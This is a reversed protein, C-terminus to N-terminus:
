GLAEVSNIERKAFWLGFFWVGIAVIFVIWSMVSKWWYDRATQDSLYLFLFIGPMVASTITITPMIESVAQKIHMQRRRRSEVIGQIIGLQEDLDIGKDVSLVICSMLFKLDPFATKNAFRLLTDRLNGGATLEIELPRLEEYLEDPADKIASMLANQPLANNQVSARMSQLFGPVQGAITRDKRKSLFGFLFSLGIGLLVTIMAAAIVQGGFLALSILLVVMFFILIVQGCNERTVLPLDVGSGIIRKGWYDNWKVWYPNKKDSKNKDVIESEFSENIQDILQADEDEQNVSNRIYAVLAFFFLGSMLAIGIAYWNISNIINQIEAADM